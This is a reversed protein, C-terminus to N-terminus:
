WVAIVADIVVVILVGSVVLEVVLIGVVVGGGM